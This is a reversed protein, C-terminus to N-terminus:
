GRVAGLDYVGLCNPAWRHIFARIAEASPGPQGLMVHTSRGEIALARGIPVAGRDEYRGFPHLGIGIIATGLTSSM